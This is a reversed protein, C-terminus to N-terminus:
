RLMGGIYLALFFITLVAEIIGQTLRKRNDLYKAEVINSVAAFLFMLSVKGFDVPKHFLFVECLVMVMIAIIIAIMGARVGLRFGYDENESITQTQAVALIEDQEEFTQM